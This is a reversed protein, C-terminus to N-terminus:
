PRPLKAEVFPSESNARIPDPLVSTPADNPEQLVLKDRIALDLIRQRLKQTDIM